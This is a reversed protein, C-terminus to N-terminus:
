ECGHKALDDLAYRAHAGNSTGPRRIDALELLADTIRDAISQPMDPHDIFRELPGALEQTLLSFPKESDDHELNAAQSSNLAHELAIPLLLRGDSWFTDPFEAQELCLSRSQRPHPAPSKRQLAQAPV